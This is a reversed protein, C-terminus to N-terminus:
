VRSLFFRMRRQRCILPADPPVVCELMVRLSDCRGPVCAQRTPLQWQRVCAVISYLTWLMRLLDRLDFGLQCCQLCLSAALNMTSVPWAHDPLVFVLFRLIVDRTDPQTWSGHFFPCMWDPKLRRARTSLGDRSLVVDFSLMYSIWTGELLFLIYVSTWAKSGRKSIISCTAKGLWLLLIWHAEQM